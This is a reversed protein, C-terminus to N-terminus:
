LINTHRHARAFVPLPLLLQPDRMGFQRSPRPMRKVRAQVFQQILLLEIFEGFGFAGLEVCVLISTRRQRRARIETQQQDAVELAHIGFTADGPSSGIRQTQTLEQPDAQILGRGIVRGDGSRSPQDIHFRMPFHEQPHQSYQRISTQQFALRYTHIGGRQFGIGRHTGNDPPVVPSSILLEERFQGLLRADQLLLM